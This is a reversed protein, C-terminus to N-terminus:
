KVEYQNFKNVLLKTFNEYNVVDYFTSKWTDRANMRMEIKRTYTLNAYTTLVKVLEEEQFDVDLLYGNYNPKVVEPVGGVKTGIVPISMSFAEMMTMPMGETSSVNILFDFEHNSIYNLADENKMEGLFQYDINDKGSLKQKAYEVIQDYLYRAGIHTWHVKLGHICSLTDIIRDIRKIDRVYSFSVIRIDNRETFCYTIDHESVGLYNVSAKNTVDFYNKCFYSLGKQSIFSFWDVNNNYVCKYPQYRDNIDLEYLDGGHLRCVVFDGHKKVISAAFCAYENWYSYLVVPGNINNRIENLYKAFHLTRMQVRICVKIRSISFKHQGIIKFVEKIFSKSFISNVLLTLIHYNLHANYRHLIVNDPVNVYQIDKVNRSVIHVNFYKALSKIEEKLFSSETLGFPFSQTILILTKKNRFSVM